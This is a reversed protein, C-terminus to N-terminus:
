FSGVFMTDGELLSIRASSSVPAETPGPVTAQEGEEEDKVM